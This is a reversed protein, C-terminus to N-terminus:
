ESDRFAMRARVTNVFENRTIGFMPEEYEEKRKKAFELLGGELYDSLKLEGDLCKKLIIGAQNFVKHDLQSDEFISVIEFDTKIISLPIVLHFSSFYKNERVNKPIHKKKYFEYQEDDLISCTVIRTDNWDAYNMVSLELGKSFLYSKESGGSYSANYHEITDSEFDKIARIISFTSLEKM